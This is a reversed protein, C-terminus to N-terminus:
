KLVEAFWDEIQDEDCYGKIVKRDTLYKALYEQEIQGKTPICYINQFGNCFLDMLSTYGSRCFVTHALGLKEAIQTRDLFSHYELNAKQYTHYPKKFNGAVLIFNSDSVKPILELFTNELQSRRPEPGSLMIMVSNKLPTDEIKLSTHLGIFYKPIVMKPHTMAGSLNISAHDPIWIADFPRVLYNIILHSLWKKLPNKYMLQLQHTIIYSPVDELYCGYRNDSILIDPRFSKAILTIAEKESKIAKIIQFSQRLMGLTFSGKQPYSINYSPIEKIEQDPFSIKLVNLAEGDSIILVENGNKQLQHILPISRTAHGIGWNLVTFIIKKNKFLGIDFSKGVM